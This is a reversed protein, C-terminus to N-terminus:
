PKAARKDKVRPPVEHEDSFNEVDIICGIEGAVSAIQRGGPEPLWCVPHSLYEARAPWPRKLQTKSETESGGFSDTPTLVKALTHRGGYHSHDFCTLFPSKSEHWRGAM